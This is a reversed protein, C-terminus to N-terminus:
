TRNELNAYKLWKRKKTTDSPMLEYGIRLKSLSILEGATNLLNPKKM